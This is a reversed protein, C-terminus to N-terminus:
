GESSETGTLVDLRPKLWSNLDTLEEYGVSHRMAYEHYTLDAGARELFEKAERGYHIPLVDDQEGHAVFFARGRVAETDIELGAHLPLYGSLIITGAALDPNTLTITGAMMGGQSFGLLFLCAPNIDFGPIIEDIFRRLASRSHAFSQPEPEGIGLLQYWHYGSGMQFPARASVVLLRPDLEEALDLLDLENAGRGHLMLLAPSQGPVAERPPVVRHYLAANDLTRLSSTSDM